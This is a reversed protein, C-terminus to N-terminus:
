SCRAGGILVFRPSLVHCFCYQDCHAGYHEDSSECEGNGPTDPCQFWIHRCYGQRETHYQATAQPQRMTAVPSQTAIKGGRRDKQQRHIVGVPITYTSCVDHLIRNPYQQGGCEQATPRAPRRQRKTEACVQSGSPQPKTTMLNLPHIKDVPRYRHADEIGASSEQRPEQRTLELASKRLGASIRLSQRLFDDSPLARLLTLAFRQGIRQLCRACKSLALSSVAGQHGLGRDADDSAITNTINGM